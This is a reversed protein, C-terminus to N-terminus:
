TIGLICLQLSAAYDFLYLYLFSSYMGVLGFNDKCRFIILFQRWDNDNLLIIRECSQLMGLTQELM